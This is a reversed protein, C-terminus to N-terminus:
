FTIRSRNKLMRAGNIIMLIGAAIGGALVCIGVALTSAGTSGMTKYLKEDM